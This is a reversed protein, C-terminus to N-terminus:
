KVKEPACVAIRLPGSKVTEGGDTTIVLFVTGVLYENSQSLGLKILFREATHKMITYKNIVMKTMEVPDPKVWPLKYIAPDEGYSEIKVRGATILGNVGEQCIRSKFKPLCWKTFEEKLHDNMKNDLDDQGTWPRLGPSTKDAREDPHRDYQTQGLHHFDVDRANLMLEAMELWDDLMLDYEATPKIEGQFNSGFMWEPYLTASTIMVNNDSNNNLGVDIISRQLTDTENEPEPWIEGGCSKGKDVTVLMSMAPKAPSVTTIIGHIAAILSGVTIGGLTVLALVAFVWNNLLATKISDYLTSTNVAGTPVRRSRKL